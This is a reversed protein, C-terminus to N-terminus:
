HVWTRTLCNATFRTFIGFFWCKEASSKLIRHQKCSNVIAVSHVDTFFAILMGCCSLTLILEIWLHRSVCNRQSQIQGSLVSELTWGIHDAKWPQLFQTLQRSVSAFSNCIVQSQNSHWQKHEFSIGSTVTLLVYCSNLRAYKHDFNKFNNPGPLKM